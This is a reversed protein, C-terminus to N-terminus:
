LLVELVPRFGYIADSFQLSAYYSISVGDYGRSVRLSDGTSTWSYSGNGCTSRVLLDCDTYEAWAPANEPHDIHLPYMFSNWEVNSLLRSSYKIGDIAVIRGFVSEVANIDNWSISHRLTQKAILLMKDGDIVKLWGADSNQSVGATLGLLNCLDDGSILEESSVEGFFGYEPTGTIVEKNGPVNSFDPPSVIPSPLTGQNDYQITFSVDFVHNNDKPILKSLYSATVILGETAPIDFEVNDSGDLNWNSVIADDIKVVLNEFFINPIQFKTRLGDGVGIQVDNRQRGEFIGIRPVKVALGTGLWMAVGIDKNFDNEEFRTSVKVRKNAIDAVRTGTKSFGYLTDSPAEQSTTTAIKLTNNPASGGTLYDRWGNSAYFLGGDINPIEIFATAYIDVIRLDTKDISLPNGEADTIMAHTNINTTTDSIGVETITNGNYELTGLRINKTWKSTPYSRIVEETTAPKSGLRNFLTTRSPTPTGTGTGFVINDFYSQFNCLRTYARDLVINEAQGRQVEEMTEANYVIIDFRNHIVANQKIKM